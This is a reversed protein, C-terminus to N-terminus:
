RAAGKMNRAMDANVRGQQGAVAKATANPDGSGQVVIQTQQNVNQGGGTVAAAAQPTPTLAGQSSGGGFFGAIKGGWEAMTAFKGMIWDFFGTFWEKVKTWAGLVADAGASFAAKVDDWYVILGIIAAVLAAIAAIVLGIPNAYLVLNFLLVAIRAAAMVGNFVGVAVSWAAMATNVVAIAAAQVLTAVKMATLVAIVGGMIAMLGQLAVGFGSSWDILSEGGEYFTMMDDILLAIIAALAVLRGIPSQLFALNLMKWAAIAMAIYGLWGNTATNIKLIWGIVVAAASAVRAALTFFAEAIRIIIQVIPLIADIAKPMMEMATKRFRILSQTISDMIGRMKPMMKVAIVEYAKAFLMKWKEIEQQLVKFVKTFEKGEAVAEEFDFGVADDIAKLEASLAALDANFVKLLAPDLGLREMVRLQKGREMDKFKEALEGMVETTPKLKGSADTVAIGLDEFVLKARGMGMSTDVIARDLNKLSEIAKENDVGLIQSADVFEDVADATTRFQTALKDLQDYEAAVSKVGAFVAAAAATAAAGMATVAVTASTITSTFRALGADDVKFGLGVLFEKIVEGSM